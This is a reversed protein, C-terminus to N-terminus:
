KPQIEITIVIKGAALQAFLSLVPQLVKAVAAEDGQIAKLLNAEDAALAAAAEHVADAGANKALNELM